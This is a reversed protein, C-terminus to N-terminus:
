SLPFIGLGTGFRVITLYSQVELHLKKESMKKRGCVQSQSRSRPEKPANILLNLVALRFLANWFFVALIASSFWKPYLVITLHWGPFSGNILLVLTHSLVIFSFDLESECNTGMGLTNEKIVTGFLYPDTGSTQARSYLLCNFLLSTFTSAVPVENCIHISIHRGRTCKVHHKM